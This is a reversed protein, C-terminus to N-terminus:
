LNEVPLTKTRHRRACCAWSTLAMAATTVCTPEPLSVLTYGGPNNPFAVLAYMTQGLGPALGYILTGAGFNYRWRDAGTDSSVAVIESGDAMVITGQQDIIASYDRSETSSRQWRLAGSPNLAILGYQDTYWYTNQQDDVLIDIPNFSTWLLPQYTWKVSGNPNLAVARGNYDDVFYIVGDSGITPASNSGDTYSRPYTWLVNGASAVARIDRDSLIVVGDSTVAAGGAHSAQLPLTWTVTGDPNVAGWLNSQTGYLVGDSGIAHVNALPVSPRPTGDRSFGQNFGPSNNYNGVYLSDDPGAEPWVLYSSGSAYNWRISGDRNLSRANFGATLYIEGRSNIAPGNNWVSAISGIDM